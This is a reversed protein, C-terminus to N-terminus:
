PARTVIVQGFGQDLRLVLEGAPDDVTFREDIAVNVGSRTTDFAVIEGGRVGGRVEVDVDDGVVIRLEGFTVGADVEVPGAARDLELESLDVELEGALLRYRDPLQDASAPTFTREGIEGSFRFDEAVGAILLPPVLLLGLLGLWRARGVWAGVLLGLGIVALGLALYERLGLALVGLNDLAAGAGTVLLAAAITLQGLMSAPEAPRPPAPPPSPWSARAMHPPAGGAAPPGGSQGTPNPPAASPPRAPHARRDDGQQFLVIGVVVLALVWFLSPQGTSVNIAVILGIGIVILAQAWPPADGFRRAASAGHSEAGAVDAGDEEPVAIWLIAYLLVGFGGTIALIVFLVRVVVPDVGFYRGLGGAVGGVVGDRDRTLRRPQNQPQSPPPTADQSAGPSPATTENMTLM